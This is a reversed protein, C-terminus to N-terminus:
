PAIEMPLIKVHYGDRWKPLHKDFGAVQAPLAYLFPKHCAECVAESKSGGFTSEWTARLKSGQYDAM